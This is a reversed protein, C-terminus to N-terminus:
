REFPRTIKGEMGEKGDLLGAAHEVEKGDRGEKGEKYKRGLDGGVSTIGLGRM